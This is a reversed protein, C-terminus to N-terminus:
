SNRFILSTDFWLQMEMPLHLGRLKIEFSAEAYAPASPAMGKDTAKDYLKTSGLRIRLQSTEALVKM